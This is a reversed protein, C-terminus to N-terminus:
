AAVQEARTRQSHHARCLSELNARDFPAGGQDLDIRHHVDTAVQECGEQECLPVAFLQAKRIIRWRKSNYIAKNNANHTRRNNVKAHYHCRGRYSAYAGCGPEVCPSNM